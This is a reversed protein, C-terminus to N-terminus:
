RFVGWKKAADEPLFPMIVDYFIGADKVEFGNVIISGDCGWMAVDFIKGKEETEFVYYLRVDLYSSKKKVLVLDDKSIQKFLDIHEVLADGYIVIAQEESARILDDVSWAYLTLTLPSVYYITLSIDNISESNIMTSFDNLAKQCRINNIWYSILVTAVIILLILIAIIAVKKVGMGM